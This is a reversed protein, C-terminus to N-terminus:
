RARTLVLRDWRITRSVLPAVLVCTVVPLVASATGFSADQFILFGGYLAALTAPVLWFGGLRLFVLFSLQLAAFVLISSRILQAYGFDAILLPILTAHTASLRVDATRASDRVDSTYRVIQSPPTVGFRNLRAMAWPFTAEGKLRGDWRLASARGYTDSAIVPIGFYVYLPTFTSLASVVIPPLPLEQRLRGEGRSVDRVQGMFAFVVTVALLAATGQAFRRAQALFNLKAGPAILFAILYTALTQILWVRGGTSMGGPVSAFFLLALRGTEVKGRARDQVAWLVAPVLAALSIVNYLYQAPPLSIALYTQDLFSGRIAQLNFGVEAIRSALLSMGLLFEGLLIFWLLSNLPPVPLRKPILTMVFRGAISGLIFGIAAGVHFQRILEVGDPTLNPLLRLTMSLDASVTGILWGVWYFTAVTLVRQTIVWIIFTTGIAMLATFALLTM